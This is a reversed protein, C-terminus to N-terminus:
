ISYLPNRNIKCKREHPSAELFKLMLLHNFHRRSRSNSNLHSDVWRTDVNKEKEFYYNGLIGGIFTKKELATASSYTRLFPGWTGLLM